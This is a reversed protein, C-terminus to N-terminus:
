LFLLKTEIQGKTFNLRTCVPKQACGMSRKSHNYRERTDTARPEIALCIDTWAKKSASRFANKVTDAADEAPSVASGNVYGFLDLSEFYLRINFAWNRYNSGNLKTIKLQFDSSTAM